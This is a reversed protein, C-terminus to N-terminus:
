DGLLAELTEIRDAERSPKDWRIRHIRPFRMALGSKHRKSAHLSDFAVEVVLGPRVARVPGFRETTNDRVWKDLLALEEDTFGFYAKGVPVLAAERWVGFTYDSYLSSRRGHGRQAYM